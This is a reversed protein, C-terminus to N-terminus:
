DRAKGEPFQGGVLAGLTGGMVAGLAAVSLTPLLCSKHIADSSRCLERALLGLYLGGTAGGILTGTKWKTPPIRKRLTDASDAPTPRGLPGAPRASFVPSLIPRLTTVALEQARGAIPLALSLLIVLIPLRSV